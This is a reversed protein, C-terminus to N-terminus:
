AAESTSPDDWWEDIFALILTEVRFLAQKSNVLGAANTSGTTTSTKGKMPHVSIYKPTLGARAVLSMIFNFTSSIDCVFDNPEALNFFARGQRPRPLDPRARVVDDTPSALYHYDALELQTINEAATFVALLAEMRSVLAAPVLQDLESSSTIDPLLHSRGRQGAQHISIRKVVNALDPIRTTAYLRRIGQIFRFVKSQRAKRQADHETTADDVCCIGVFTITKAIDPIRTTACFRQLDADEDGPENISVTRFRNLRFSRRISKEVYRCSLRLCALATRDKRRLLCQAIKELLEPPLDLLGPM